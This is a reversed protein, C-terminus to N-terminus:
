TVLILYESVSVEELIHMGPSPSPTRSHKSTPSKPDPSRTKKTSQKRPKKGEREDKTVLPTKSELETSITSEKPPTLEIQM